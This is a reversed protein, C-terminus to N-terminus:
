ASFQAVQWPAPPWPATPGCSAPRTACRKGFTSSWIVSTVSPLPPMGDNPLLSVAAASGDPRRTCGCRGRGAQDVTRFLRQRLTTRRIPRSCPSLRPNSGSSLFGCHREPDHDDHDRHDQGDHDHLREVDDSRGLHSEHRLAERGALEVLVVRDREVALGAVLGREQHRPQAELQPREELDLLVRPHLDGGALDAHHDRLDTRRQRDARLARDVLRLEPVERVQAGEDLVAALLAHLARHQGRAREDRDVRDREDHEGRPVDVAAPTAPGPRGLGLAVAERGLREPQLASWSRTTTM